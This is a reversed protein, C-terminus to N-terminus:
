NRMTLSSRFVHVELRENENSNKAALVSESTQKEIHPAIQFRLNTSELKRRVLRSVKDIRGHERRIKPVDQRLPPSFLSDSIGDDSRVICLHTNNNIFVRRNLLLNDIRRENDTCRQRGQILWMANLASALYSSGQIQRTFDIGNRRRM